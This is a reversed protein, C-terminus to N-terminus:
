KNNKKQKRKRKCSGLMPYRKKKKKNKMSCSKDFQEIINDLEMDFSNKEIFLNNSFLNVLNDFDNELNKQIKKTSKKKVRCPKEIEMKMSLTNVGYEYTNGSRTRM